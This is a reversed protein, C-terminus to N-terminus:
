ERGMIKVSTLSKLFAQKWINLLGFALDSFLFVGIMCVQDVCVVQQIVM